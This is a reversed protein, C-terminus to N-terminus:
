RRDFYIYTKASTDSVPAISVTAAPLPEGATRDTVIGSVTAEGQARLAANFAMLILLLFLRKM